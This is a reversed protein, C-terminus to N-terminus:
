PNVPAQKKIRDDSTCFANSIPEGRELWFKLSNRPINPGTALPPCFPATAGALDSHEESLSPFPFLLLSPLPAGRGIHLAGAERPSAVARPINFGLNLKQLRSGQFFIRPEYQRTQQILCSFKSARVLQQGASYIIFFSLFFSVFM